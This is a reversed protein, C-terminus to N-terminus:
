TADGRVPRARRAELWQTRREDLRLLPKVDCYKLAQEDSFCVGADGGRIEAAIADLRQRWVQLVAAWSPFIEEPYLKRQTKSDLAALKPMLNDTDALGTVAPEGLLVKAFAVGVVSGEAYEPIAAYIPLQPETIREAAWNKTDISAGTKYDIILLGGSELRDIRDPHIAVEIGGINVPPSSELAVVRFPMERAMELNLWGKLLKILRLRELARYGPKLEANAPEAAFADLTFDVARIIEAEIGQAGLAHLRESTEVQAWFHELVRHVLTGRKRNDLGEVPQELAKAGLRFQFYAWAPCIAQARLIWTGGRVKEGPLVPPAFSDDIPADLRSGPTRLLDDIWYDGAPRAQKEVPLHSILPSGGLAAGNETEPRTYIIRSASSGLGAQLSKAFELQVAACANPSGAKRQAEASLLPNPRAPPPWATDTMGTVRVADFHLGSVELMGLVQIPPDGQTKPQFVREGCMDRFHGLATSANIDGLISDLSGLRLMEERLVARTQFEHSSLAREHLWGAADLTQLFITCWLSPPKRGAFDAAAQKLAHLHRLFQKDGAPVNRTIYEAARIFKALPVAPALMTRMGAEVRARLVQESLGTSWYPSRLLRGMQLQEVEHRAAVIELVDIAIGVLPYKELSRGLSLNFPMSGESWAPHLTEPSLIDQLADHIMDGRVALDPVVIAIRAHPAHALTERAWHAAALMEAASDPYAIVRPAAATRCVQLTLIKVGLGALAQQLALDAPNLRDFGAFIVQAPLMSGCLDANALEAIVAQRFSPADIVGRTKCIGLYRKRWREFQLNESSRAPTSLPVQWTVVLEHAQVATKAMGTIDFLYRSEDELTDLIAQEWLLREGIADLVAAQLAPTKAGRLAMTEGLEALWSNVTKCVLTDWATMGRATQALDYQACLSQPLRGTACLVVADSGSIEELPINM